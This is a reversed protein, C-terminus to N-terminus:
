GAQQQQRGSYQYYHENQHPFSMGYAASLADAASSNAALGEVADEVTGAAGSVTGRHTIHNPIESTHTCSM